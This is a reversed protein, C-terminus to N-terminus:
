APRQRYHLGFPQSNREIKSQLYINKHERAAYQRLPRM